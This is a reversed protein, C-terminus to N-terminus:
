SLTQHLEAPATTSHAACELILHSISGICLINGPRIAMAQAWPHQPDNTYIRGHLYRVTRPAEQAAHAQPRLPTFGAFATVLVLVASAGARAPHTAGPHRNM